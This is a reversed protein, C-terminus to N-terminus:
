AARLKTVFASVEDQLQYAQSSLNGSLAMLQTSAAGTMEAARGVGFINETVEQTGQAARATNGAIEHTAAGQQEVAAAIISSISQIDGITTVIKGISQVSRNTAQQIQEIKASIDKTARSTQTALDKVESAVVAFGKGADGARAAEITANLALLNTQAAIDSILKVVEGIGSAAQTLTQIETETVAVDSVAARAVGASQSVQSNIEQVSSSMEETAAAVTQVNAAAEEAAGSVVQAQRSTEEATAALSQAADSVESSSHVFASAIAGMSTEFADAIALREERVRLATQREQDAARHRLREAEELALRFQEVTQAMAGLEDKRDLGPVAATLEGRSISAMAMDLRRMPLSLGSRTLWFAAAFVLVLGALVSIATTRQASRTQAELRVALRENAAVNADVESTMASMLSILRPSCASNMERIAADRQGAKGLTITEGCATSMASGYTDRFGELKAKQEPMRAIANAIEAQFARQGKAIDENSKAIEDPTESIILKLISRATWATHRNARALATTGQASGTLGENYSRGIASMQANAFVLAFVSVAGLASLLLLVKAVAPLHKFSLHM